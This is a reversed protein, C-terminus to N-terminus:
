QENQSHYRVNKQLLCTWVRGRQKNCKEIKKRLELLDYLKKVKIRETAARLLLNM